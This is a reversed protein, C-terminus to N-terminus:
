PILLFPELRQNCLYFPSVKTFDLWNNFGDNRVKLALARPELGLRSVVKRLLKQTEEDPAIDETVTKTVIVWRDFDRM